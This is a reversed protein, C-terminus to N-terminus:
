RGTESGVGKAESEKMEAMVIRSEVTLNVKPSKRLGRNKFQSPYCSASIGLTGEQRGAQRGAVKRREKM